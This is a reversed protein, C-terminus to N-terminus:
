VGQMEPDWIVKHMQIQFRVEPKDEVMWEVIERPEITGWAPSFLLKKTKEALKYKTVIACAYAYDERSGIVFKVEDDATLYEYNVFDMHKAMGSSPMKCDLIRKVGEPLISIDKSGSTEVLVECGTELLKDCLVAVDPQELPEGGTIEVLKFGSEAVCEVIAEIEM